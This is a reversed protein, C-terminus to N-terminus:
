KKCPYAELFATVLLVVENEHLREPHENMYKIAIRAAQGTKIGPEPICFLLIGKYEIQDYLNQYYRNLGTVGSMLGFCFGMYASNTPDSSGKADDVIAIAINCQSLLENGDCFATHSSLLILGIVLAGITKGMSGIPTWFNPVM